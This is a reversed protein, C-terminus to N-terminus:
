EGAAFEPVKDSQSEPAANENAAQHHMGDSFAAALIGTPMAVLGIGAVATLAAVIRGLVTHPCVDGYGVTTLTSVSWWMARPISGFADPQAEGEILYLLTSTIVMLITAAMISVYLEHKRSAIAASIHHLARSFRGLRAIRLVRAFRFLRLLFVESGAFTLLIPAIALLDIIASASVLYRLRGIGRYRPDEGAVWVRLGYEIAFICTLADEVKLFFTEHGAVLTPETELIAFLASAVILLCIIRNTPSLGKAKWAAPELQAFIRHRLSM